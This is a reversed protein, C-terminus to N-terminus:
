ALASTPLPAPLLFVVIQHLLLPQITTSFVNSTQFLGMNAIPSQLHCSPLLLHPLLPSSFRCELLQSATKALALASVPFLSPVPILFLSLDPLPLRCVQDHNPSSSPDSDTATSPSKITALSMSPPHFYCAQDATACVMHRCDTRVPESRSSPMKCASWGIGDVRDSKTM